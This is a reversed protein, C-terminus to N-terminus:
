TRREPRTSSLGRGGSESTSMSPALLSFAPELDTESGAARKDRADADREAGPDADREAHAAAELEGLSVADLPQNDILRVGGIRAAVLAIAREMPGRPDGRTWCVPDRLAAYELEVEPASAATRLTQALREADREGAQWAAQVTRLARSLVLARERDTPSLLANRSSRALGSPERSTPCVIITPSGRAQALHRVVLTQQFDKQGFYARTPQVIDFLREVITVVGAFHGPRSAGELGEAAPGPDRLRAPDFTGDARLEGPFFGALDGTFVMDTGAEDLLDADHAFDRPYRAYDRPDNFQLPNVFVSVCTADNEARARRVLEMHGEHLAGMTPVFGLTRGSAVTEVCWAGAAAPNELRLIMRAAVERAESDRAEFDLRGV